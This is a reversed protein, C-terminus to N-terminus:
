QYARLLEEPVARPQPHPRPLSVSFTSGQGEVSKVTVQGGLKEVIKKVCALGIGSGEIDNGHARHYPRFIDDIKAAPVGLGNDTVDIVVMNGTTGRFRVNIEPKRAPSSYKLANGLLNSFVQYLRVEAGRVTPLREDITINAQKQQVLKQLDSTVHGVVQRLPVDVQPAEKTSISSYEIVSKVLAELRRTAEIIFTILEHAEGDLKDRYDELLATAMGKITFIPAKLDHSVMYAFDSLDRNKEEIQKQYTLSDTVDVTVSMVSIVSGLDDFVPVMRTELWMPFGKHHRVQYRVLMDEGLESVRRAREYRERDEEVTLSEFFDAGAAYIEDTSYGTLVETYPSCFIIKGNMDRVIVSAAINTSLLSNREELRQSLLLLARKDKKLLKIEKLAALAALGLCLLVAGFLLPSIM